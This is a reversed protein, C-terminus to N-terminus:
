LCYWKFNGRRWKGGMGRSMRGAREGDLGASAWPGEGEM